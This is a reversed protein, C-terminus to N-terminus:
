IKKEMRIRKKKEGNRREEHVRKSGYGVETVFKVCGFVSSSGEM